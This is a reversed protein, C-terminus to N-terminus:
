PANQIIERISAWGTPSDKSRVYVVMSRGKVLFPEGGAKPTGRIAFTSIEVATDRQFLLSDVHSEDFHLSFDHLTGALGSRVAEKGIQYEGPRLAKVVDPHHYRMIEDVDGSAFAARIAEGTKQLAARDKSTGQYKLDAASGSIGLCSLVIFLIAPLRLRFTKM